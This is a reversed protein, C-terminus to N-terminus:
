RRPPPLLPPTGIRERWARDALGDLELQEEPGVLSQLAVLGLTTFPRHWTGDFAQVVAVM